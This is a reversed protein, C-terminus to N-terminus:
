FKKAPVVANRFTSLAMVGDDRLGPRCPGVVRDIASFERECDFETASVSHMTLGLDRFLEASPDGPAYDRFFTQPDTRLLESDAPSLPHNVFHRLHRVAADKLHQPRSRHITNL